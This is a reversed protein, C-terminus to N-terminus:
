TRSYSHGVVLAVANCAVLGVFALRTASSGLGYALLPLYLFPLTIATWFAMGRVPTLISERINTLSASPLALGDNTSSNSM